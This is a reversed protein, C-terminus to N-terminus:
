AGIQAERPRPGPPIPAERMQRILAEIEAESVLYKLVRENDIVGNLAEAARIPKIRGEEILQYVRKPSVKMKRAATRVTIYKVKSEAM